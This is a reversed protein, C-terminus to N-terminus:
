GGIEDYYNEFFAEVEWPLLGTCDTSTCIIADLGECMCSAGDCCRPVLEINHACTFENSEDLMFTQEDHYVDIRM